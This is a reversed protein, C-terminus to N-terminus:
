GGLSGWGQERDLGTFAGALLTGLDFGADIFGAGSDLGGAHFM